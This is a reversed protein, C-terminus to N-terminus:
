REFVRVRSGAPYRMPNQTPNNFSIEEARSSDGYRAAAIEYISMDAPLVFDVMRESPSENATDVVDRAAGIFSICSNVVSWRALEDGLDFAMIRNALFTVSDVQAAIDDLAMAGQDLLDQFKSWANALSLGDAKEKLYKTADPKSMISQLLYDVDQSSKLARARAAFRPDSKLSELLSQDFGREELVLSLVGGDQREPETDWSFTSIKVDYPGYEPDIYEVEGRVSSSDILDILKDLTGPYLADATEKSAMGRYLPIKLDFVYPARGTDEIGQGDRYPLESKGIRRGGRISRSGMPFEVEGLSATLLNDEWYSM